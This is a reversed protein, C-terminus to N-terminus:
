GAQQRLAEHMYLYDHITHAHTCHFTKSTYFENVFNDDINQTYHHRLRPAAM